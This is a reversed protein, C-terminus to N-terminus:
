FLVQLIVISNQYIVNDHHMGVCFTSCFFISLQIDQTVYINLPIMQASKCRNKIMAAKVCLLAMLFFVVVLCTAM